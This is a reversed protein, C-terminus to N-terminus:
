FIQGTAVKYIYNSVMILVTLAFSYMIIKGGNKWKFFLHLLLVVFTFLLPILAPNSKLSAAFDGHILYFFARQMGCGPCEINLYKKFYCDLM